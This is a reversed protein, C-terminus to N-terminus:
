DDYYIAMNGLVKWSNEFVEIPVDYFAGNSIYRLHTKSYGTVLIVHEYAAVIVMNGEKDTYEYPIGGEVNGIVWVIVPQDNALEAKIEEVSWGKVARAPLGYQNLLNAVPQAHVGYGYPPIQGWPANVDGVFGKEPNDSRPLEFQFNYESITVGFYAAWDTAVAAECSLSFYQPHGSINRIFHEEPFSPPSPETATATPTPTPPIPTATPPVPQFPTPTSTPIPTPTFPSIKGM